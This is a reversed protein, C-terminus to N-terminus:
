RRLENELREEEFEDKMNCWLCLESKDSREKFVGFDKWQRCFWTQAGHGGGNAVLMIQRLALGARHMM